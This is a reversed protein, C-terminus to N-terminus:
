FENKNKFLTQLVKPSVYKLKLHVEGSVGSSNKKPKVPVWVVSTEENEFDQQQLKNNKNSFSDFIVKFPIIAKGVPKDKDFTSWASLKVVM